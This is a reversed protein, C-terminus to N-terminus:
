VALLYFRMKRGKEGTESKKERGVKKEKNGGGKKREEEEKGDGRKRGNKAVVEEKKGRNQFNDHGNNWLHIKSDM